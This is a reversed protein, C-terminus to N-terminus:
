DHTPAQQQTKFTRAASRREDHQQVWYDSRRERKAPRVDTTTEEEDPEIERRAARTKSKQVVEHTATQHVTNAEGVVISPIKRPKSQTQRTTKSTTASARSPVAKAEMDFNDDDYEDLREDAGNERQIHSTSFQKWAFQASTMTTTM